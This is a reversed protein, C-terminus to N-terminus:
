AGEHAAPFRAELRIRESSRHVRIRGGVGRARLSLRAIAAEAEDPNARDAPMGSVSVHLDEDIRAVGVKVPTHEAYVSMLAEDVLRFAATELHSPFRPLDAAVDLDFRTKGLRLLLGRLATALGLEDLLPPHLREALLRLEQHCRSLLAMAESLTARAGESLNGAQRELMSLSMSAAALTQQADDHLARALRRREEDHAKQLEQSQDSMALKRRRTAPPDSM